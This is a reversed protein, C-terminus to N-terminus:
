VGDALVMWVLMGVFLMLLLIGEGRRVSKRHTAAIPWLLVTLLLMGILYRHVEALDAIEIPLVLAAVPLVFLINFLNSGVVNGVALDPHGRRAAMITVVVEPLSTAVAVITGGILVESVGILRAFSVAGVETSKGGIILMALGILLYVGGKALTRGRDPLSELTEQVLPDGRDKIALLFWTAMVVLFCGLLILSGRTGLSGDWTGWAVIASAAILVPLEWNVVRSGVPITCIVAGIGLVLGINAINSGIVNGFSLSSNGDAAAIVNLALEPCSTGFAVVTMGILLMSVGLRRAVIVGGEVLWHGGGLLAAIGIVLCTVSGGLSSAFENIWGM